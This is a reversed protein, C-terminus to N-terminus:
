SLVVRDGPAPETVGEGVTEVVGAGEHGLAIPFRLGWGRTDRIHLDSRCVGAAEVRVLVEGPGPEDLAIEEVAVPADASVYLAARSRM